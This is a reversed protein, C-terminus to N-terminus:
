ISNWFIAGFFYANLEESTLKKPHSHTSAKNDSIGSRFRACSYKKIASQKLPRFSNLADAQFTM